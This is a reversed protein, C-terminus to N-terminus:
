KVQQILAFVFVSVRYIVTTPACATHLHNEHLIEAHAQPHWARSNHHCGGRRGPQAASPLALDCGILSPPALLVLWHAEAPPTQLLLCM